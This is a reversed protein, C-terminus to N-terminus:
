KKGRQLLEEHVWKIKPHSFYIEKKRNKNRKEVFKTAEELKREFNKKNFLINNKNVHRPEVDLTWWDGFITNGTQTVCLDKKDCYYEYIHRGILIYTPRSPAPYFSDRKEAEQRETVMLRIATKETLRGQKEKFIKNGKDWMTMDTYYKNGLLRIEQNLHYDKIVCILPAEAESVQMLKITGFDMEECYGLEIHRRSTLVTHYLEKM